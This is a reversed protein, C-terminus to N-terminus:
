KQISRLYETLEVVRAAVDKESKVDDLQSLSKGWVPMDKNGHGAVTERGDIIKAVREAPFVRTARRPACAPRRLKVIAFNNRFKPPSLKVKV